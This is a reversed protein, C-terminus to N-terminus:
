YLSSCLRLKIEIMGSTAEYKISFADGVLSYTVLVDLKGPYGEDGDESSLRLEVENEIIKAEWFKKDFGVKGGHLSNRPPDGGNNKFLEYNKGNLSFKGCGIRNAYRGVLCGFFKSKVQYEEINDFGTVIDDWEGTKDKTFLSQIIKFTKETQNKGSYYWRLEFYGAQREPVRFSVSQRSYWQAFWIRERNDFDNKLFCFDKPTKEHFNPFCIKGQLATPTNFLCFFAIKASM